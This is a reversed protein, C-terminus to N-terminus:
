RIVHTLRLGFYTHSKVRSDPAPIHPDKKAEFRSGSSIPGFTGSFYGLDRRVALRDLGFLANADVSDNRSLPVSFNIGSSSGSGHSNEYTRVFPTFKAGGSSLAPAPVFAEDKVRWREDVRFTSSGPTSATTTQAYAPLCPALLIFLGLFTRM